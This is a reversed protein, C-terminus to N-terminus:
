ELPLSEQVIETTEKISASAIEDLKSSDEKLDVVKKNRKKPGKQVVDDNKTEISEAALPEPEDKPEAPTEEEIDLTIGDEISVTDTPKNLNLNGLITEIEKTLESSTEHIITKFMKKVMNKAIKQTTRKIRKSLEVQEIQAQSIQKSDIDEDDDDDDSVEFLLDDEFEDHYSPLPTVSGPQSLDSSKSNKRFYTVVLNNDVPEIHVVEHTETLKKFCKIKNLARQQTPNNNIDHFVIVMQKFKNLTDVSASLIWLYEEGYINMKMFIDQHGNIGSLNESYNDNKFSVKKGIVKINEPFFQSIKSINEDFAIGQPINLNMTILKSFLENDDIGALIYLDYGTENAVKYSAMKPGVPIIEYGPVAKFYSPTESKQINDAPNAWTKSGPSQQQELM